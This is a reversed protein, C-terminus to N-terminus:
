RPPNLKNNRRETLSLRIPVRNNDLAKKYNKNTWLVETRAYDTGSTNRTNTQILSRFWGNRKTLHKKYLSNEYGSLMVMAKTRMCIDLLNEHFEKDNADIVYGHKRKTFYPPDLYVLTAPRDIFMKMLEIADRREIRVNRLREVVSELREPLNYWRNVRAERNQRSYSQSFSFGHNADITGNVTMMTRVLFRRAREIGECQADFNRCTEFEEVAYPTLAIQRCLEEQNNRLQKFVNVVEGDLDNIVEIPAAAKALTLAASGCFGEVWAYHPPLNSVIQGALRQKAGFYGFPAKTSKGNKNTGKLPKTFDRTM